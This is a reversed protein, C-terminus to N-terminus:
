FALETVGQFPTSAHSRGAGYMIRGSAAEALRQCAPPALLRGLITLRPILWRLIGIKAGKESRQTRFGAIVQAAHQDVVLGVAIRDGRM